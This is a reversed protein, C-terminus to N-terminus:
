FVGGFAFAGMVFDDCIRQGDPGGNHALWAGMFAGRLREEVRAAHAPATLSMLRRTGDLYEGAASARIARLTQTDAGSVERM